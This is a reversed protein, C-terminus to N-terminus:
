KQLIFCENTTESLKSLILDPFSEITQGCIPALNAIFLRSLVLKSFKNRSLKSFFEFRYLSKSERVCMENFKLNQILNRSAKKLYKARNVCIIWNKEITLLCILSAFVIEGICCFVGSQNSVIIFEFM